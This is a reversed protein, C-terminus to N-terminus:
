REEEMSIARKPCSAACIGCGKCYHGDWTYKGDAHRCFALDPCMIWCIGCSICREQDIVPCGETRWNGTKFNRCSGPQHVDCGIELEEWPLLAEKRTYEEWDPLDTLDCKSEISPSAEVLRTEDFARRMALLNKEALRGFRKKVPDVLADLPVLGMVKVLAGIIATNTISVGLTSLAIRNADVLGVKYCRGINELVDAQDPAANIIATKGLILGHTVNVMDILTRDLVVIADPSDIRERLYIPTDSVRLFATVPAGRREPGFNPFGQAYKGDAIAAQALLEAATVAGQGGRGHFRIEIM